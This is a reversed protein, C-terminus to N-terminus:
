ETVEMIIDFEMAGDPPAPLNRIIRLLQKVSADMATIGSHASIEASKIHGSRSVSVRLTVAPTRGGLQAKSPQNWKDYLFASVREFYKMQNHTMEGGSNSIRVKSQLSKLREAFAGANFSPSPRRPRKVPKVVKTSIKIKSIDLPKWKKKVKKKKVTKKKAVKKKETKRPEPSPLETAPPEPPAPPAPEPPSLPKSESAPLDRAPNILQVKMVKPRPPKLWNILFYIIGPFLIFIVHVAIVSIFIRKKLHASILGGSRGSKFSYDNEFSM